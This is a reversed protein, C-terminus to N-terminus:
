LLKPSTLFPRGLHFEPIFIFLNTLWNGFKNKQEKTFFINLGTVAQKELLYFKNKM